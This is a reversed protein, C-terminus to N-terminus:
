KNKCIRSMRMEEKPIEGFLVSLFFLEMADDVFLGQLESIMM